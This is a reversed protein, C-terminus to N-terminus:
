FCFIGETVCNLRLVDEPTVFEKEHLEAESVPGRIIEQNGNLNPM